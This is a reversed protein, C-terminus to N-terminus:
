AGGRACALCAEDVAENEAASARVWFANYGNSELSDPLMAIRLFREAEDIDTLLPIHFVSEPGANIVPEFREVRGDVARVAM